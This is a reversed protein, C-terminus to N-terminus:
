EPRQTSESRFISPVAAGGTEGGAGGNLGFLCQCVDPNDAVDQVQPLQQVQSDASVLARLADGLSIVGM